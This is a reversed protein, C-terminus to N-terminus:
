CFRKGYSSTKSKMIALLDNHKKAKLHERMQEMSTFQKKCLKCYTMKREISVALVHEKSSKHAEFDNIDTAQYQCLRCWFPRREFSSPKYNNLMERITKELGDNVQNVPANDGEFRVSKRKPGSSSNMVSSSSSSSTIRDFHRKKTDTIASSKIINPLMRKPLKPITYETSISSTYGIVDGTVADRQVLV